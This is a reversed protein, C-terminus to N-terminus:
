VTEGLILHVLLTDGYSFWLYPFNAVTTNFYALFVTANFWQSVFVEATTVKEIRGCIVTFIGKEM